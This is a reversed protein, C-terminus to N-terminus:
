AMGVSSRTGASAAAFRGPRAPSRRSIVRLRRPPNLLAVAAAGSSASQGLESLIEAVTRRRGGDNVQGEFALGAAVGAANRDSNRRPALAEDLAAQSVRDLARRSVADGREEAVVTRTRHADLERPNALAGMIKADVEAAMQVAQSPVEAPVAALSRLSKGVERCIAQVDETARRRLFSRCSRWCSSLQMPSRLGPLGRGPRGRYRSWALDTRAATPRGPAPRSPSRTGLNRRCRERSGPNRSLWLHRSM